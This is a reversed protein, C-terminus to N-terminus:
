CPTARIGSTSEGCPRTMAICRPAPFAAVPRSNRFTASSCCCPATFSGSSSCTRRSRVIRSFTATGVTSSLSKKGSSLPTRSDSGSTANNAREASAWRICSPEFPPPGTSSRLVAVSMWIATM